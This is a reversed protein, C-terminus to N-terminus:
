FQRFFPRFFENEHDQITRFIPMDALTKSKKITHAELGTERSGSWDERGLGYGDRQRNFM